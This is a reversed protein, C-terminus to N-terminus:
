TYLISNKQGVLGSFHHELTTNNSGQDEHQLNKNWRKCNKSYMEAFVPFRPHILTKRPGLATCNQLPGRQLFHKLHTLCM